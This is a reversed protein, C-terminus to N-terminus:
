MDARQLVAMLPPTCQFTNVAFRLALEPSLLQTFNKDVGKEVVRAWGKVVKITATSAQTKFPGSLHPM